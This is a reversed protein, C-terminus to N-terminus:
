SSPSERRLNYQELVVFPPLGRSLLGRIQDDLYDTPEFNPIASKAPNPDMPGYISGNAQRFEM